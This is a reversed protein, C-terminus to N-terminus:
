RKARRKAESIDALERDLMLRNWACGAVFAISATLALAIM